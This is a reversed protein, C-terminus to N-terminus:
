GVLVELDSLVRSPPVGGELLQAALLRRRGDPLEAGSRLAAVFMGLRYRDTADLRAAASLLSETPSAPCWDTVAVQSPPATAPLHARPYPCSSVCPTVPAPPPTFVSHAFAHAAQPTPTPLHAAFAALARRSRISAPRFTYLSFGRLAAGLSHAFVASSRPLRVAPHRGSVLVETFLYQHKPSGPQPRVLMTHDLVVRLGMRSLGSLLRPYMSAPDADPETAVGLIAAPRLMALQPNSAAVITGDPEFSVAASLPNVPRLSSGMDTFTGRRPLFAIAFDPVPSRMWRPWRGVRLCGQKWCILPWSAVAAM